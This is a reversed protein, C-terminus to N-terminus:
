SYQFSYVLSASCIKGEKLTSSSVALNRDLYFKRMSKMTITYRCDVLNYFLECVYSSAPLGTPLAIQLCYMTKWPLVFKEKSNM